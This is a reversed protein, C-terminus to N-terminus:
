LATFALAGASELTLEFTLEGDHSGSFDLAALLFPGEVVGFDPLVIDVGMQDNKPFTIGCDILVMRGDHEVVYMNKGIEGAGGLPIVRVGPESM